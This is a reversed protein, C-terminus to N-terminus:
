RPRQDPKRDRQTAEGEDSMTEGQDEDGSMGPRSPESSSSQQSSSQQSSQGSERGPQRQSQDQSGQGQSGASRGAQQGTQGTKQTIDDGCGCGADSKSDQEGPRGQQQKRADNM